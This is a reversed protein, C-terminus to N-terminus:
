RTVLGRPSASNMVVTARSSRRRFGPSFTVTRVWQGASKRWLGSTAPTEAMRSGKTWFPPKGTM